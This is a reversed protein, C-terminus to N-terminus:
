QQAQVRGECERDKKSEESGIWIGKGCYISEVRPLIAQSKSGDTETDEKCNECSNKNISKVVGFVMLTHEFLTSSSYRGLISQQTSLHAAETHRNPLGERKNM